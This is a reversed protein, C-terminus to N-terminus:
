RNYDFGDETIVTGWNIMSSTQKMKKQNYEFGVETIVTGWNIMSSTQKLKEKLM